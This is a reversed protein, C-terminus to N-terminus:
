IVSDGRIEKFRGTRGPGRYRERVKRYNRVSGRYMGWKLNTRVDGLKKKDRL